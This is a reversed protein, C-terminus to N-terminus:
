ASLNFKENRKSPNDAFSQRPLRGEDPGGFNLVRVWVSQVISSRHLLVGLATGTTNTFLDTMGSDRNPLFWQSAEVTFSLFFGLLVVALAAHNIPRVSSFYAFFVFGVPMFGIINVGLDEWFGWHKWVERTHSYQDVTSRLFAPHLVFYHAPINLSTAPDALNRVTSGAREDFLYLAVPPLEGTLVPGQHPTWNKFHNSVQAATLEHDYIALGSIQGKWTDDMTSNALVLRGTLEQPRIGSDTYTGALAGNVYLAIQSSNSAITVLVREGAQFVHDVRFWPQTVHGREDAVYRQVAISSGYQRLLFPARPDASSDFALISGGAKTKEPVLWIELSRGADSSSAVARFPIASVISGHGDFRLGNENKLWSVANHPQHFPWLGATLISALVFLCSASIVRAGGHNINAKHM